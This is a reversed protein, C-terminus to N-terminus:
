TRRCVWVNVRMVRQLSEVPVDEFPGVEDPPADPPTDVAANNVLV